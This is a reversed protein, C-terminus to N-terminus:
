FIDSSNKKEFIHRILSLFSTGCIHLINLFYNGVLLMCFFFCDYSSKFSDVSVGRELINMFFRADKEVEKGGLFLIGISCVILFGFFYYAEELFFFFIRLLFLFFVCSFFFYFVQMHFFM